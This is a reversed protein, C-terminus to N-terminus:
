RPWGASVAPATGPAVVAPGQDHIKLPLGQLTMPDFKSTDAAVFFPIKFQHACLAIMFTGIKLRDLPMAAIHEALKGLIEYGTNSYHWHAGPAYATWLGGEAFTPADGPLGAVHDLLHQVTITNGAPFPIAPLLDSLRQTLKFRGEAALQHLVTAVMVKSISGIQFLTDDTIPTRADTNAFGFNMVTSFGDPLTVGLTMGPLRWYSLHSEGYARIAALTTALSPSAQAIAPLALQSGIALGLAGGTFARRSLYM